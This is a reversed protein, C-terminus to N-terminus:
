SGSRFHRRRASAATTVGRSNMRPKVRRTSACTRLSATATGITRLTYNLCVASCLEEMSAGYLALRPVGSVSATLSCISAACPSYSFSQFPCM